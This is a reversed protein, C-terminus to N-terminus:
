RTACLYKTKFFVLIVIKFQYKPLSKQTFAVQHGQVFICFLKSDIKAEVRFPRLKTKGSWYLLVFEDLFLVTVSLQLIGQVVPLVRYKYSYYALILVASIRGIFDSNRLGSRVFFVGVLRM